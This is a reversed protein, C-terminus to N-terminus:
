QQPLDPLPMWHTIAHDFIIESEYGIVEHVTWTGIFLQAATIRMGDTVLVGYGEPPMMETVSTWRRGKMGLLDDILGLAFLHFNDRTVCRENNALQDDYWDLARQSLANRDSM